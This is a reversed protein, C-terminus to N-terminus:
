GTLVHHQRADAVLRTALEVFDMGAGAVARAFLSTPFLLPAAEFARVTSVGDSSVRVEMRSVDCGLANHAAVAIGDLAVRRPEDVAAPCVYITDRPSYFTIPGAANVSEIVEVAPLSAVQAGDRMCSLSFTRGGSGSAEVVVAATTALMKELSAQVEAPNAGGYPPPMADRVSPRVLCGGPFWRVARAATVQLDDGRECVMYPAVPIGAQALSM